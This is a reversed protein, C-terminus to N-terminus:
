NDDNDFCKPLQVRSGEMTTSFMVTIATPFSIELMLEFALHLRKDKM